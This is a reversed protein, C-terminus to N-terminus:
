DIKKEMYFANAQVTPTVVIDNLCVHAPRTAAFWIIESIDEAVLPSFGKYVDKAKQEDGKHRVLSFETEAAGPCIGTVKINYPLLDIRTAKTLSDVAHKTACYVNGNKYTDKGAVSGINFIHGQMREKMLPAIMRTVYLLGKVNTDIMTDWDDMNGNEIGSLGLALGANNILVDVNKWESPLNLNKEVEARNRVDFCLALVKINYIRELESKLSDLREKRRGTIILNFCNAAFKIACAKGFGATAGTILAIKM